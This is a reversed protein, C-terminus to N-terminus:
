NKFHSDYFFFFVCSNYMNGEKIGVLLLMYINGSLCMHLYDNYSIFTQCTLNLLLMIRLHLAPLIRFGKGQHANVGMLPNM